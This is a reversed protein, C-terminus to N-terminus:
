SGPLSEDSGCPGVNSGVGTAHSCYTIQCFTALGDDGSINHQCYSTGMMATEVVDEGFSTMPSLGIIIGLVVAASIKVANVILNKLKM